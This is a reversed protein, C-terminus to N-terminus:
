NHYTAYIEGKTASEFLIEQAEKFRRHEALLRQARLRRAAEREGRRKEIYREVRRELSRFIIYWCVCEILVLIVKLIFSAIEAKALTEM